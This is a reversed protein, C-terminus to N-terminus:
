RRIITREIRGFEVIGGTDGGLAATVAPVHVVMTAKGPGGLQVTVTYEKGTLHVNPGGGFVDPFVFIDVVGSFTAGGEILQLSGPTVVGEVTMLTCTLFGGTEPGFMSCVFTGGSPDATFGFDSPSLITVGPIPATIRGVGSIQPWQLAAEARDAGPALSIFGIAASGAAANQLFTRRTLRNM